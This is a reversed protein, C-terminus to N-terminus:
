LILDITIILYNDLAFQYILNFSRLIVLEFSIITSKILIFLNFVHFVQSSKIVFMLFGQTSIPLGLSCRILILYIVIPFEFVIFPILM